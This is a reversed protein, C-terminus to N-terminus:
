GNHRWAMSQVVPRPCGKSPNVFVAAKGDVLYTNGVVIGVFLFDFAQRDIVQDAFAVFHNGFFIQLFEVLLLFVVLATDVVFLGGNFAVAEGGDAVVDGDADGLFVDLHLDDVDASAFVVPISDHIVLGGKFLSKGFGYRFGTANINCIYRLCLSAEVVSGKGQHPIITKTCCASPGFRCCMAM